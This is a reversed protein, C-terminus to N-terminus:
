LPSSGRLRTTTRHDVPERSKGRGRARSLTVNDLLDHVLRRKAAISLEPWAALLDGDALESQTRLEALRARAEDV